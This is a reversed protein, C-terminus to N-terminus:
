WKLQSKKRPAWAVYSCVSYSRLNRRGCLVCLTAIAEKQRVNMGNQVTCACGGGEVIDVMVMYIETVMVYLTIIGFCSPSHPSPYSPSPSFICQSVPSAPPPSPSLFTLPLPPSPVHSLLYSSSLPLPLFFAPSPHSTHGHGM